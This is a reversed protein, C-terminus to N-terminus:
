TRPRRRSFPGPPRSTPPASPGAAARPLSLEAEESRLESDQPEVNLGLSRMEKVLVNFSEPCAPRSTDEGRRHGRLGQHPRGRRGVEGDADGAAHLRRRLGGAGLGGDRRLAPRRVAGQRGAAAPHGPQVPRHLPRPDQRGGPPAAEATSSLGRHGSARVSAPAATSCTSQGSEDFGWSRASTSTRSRAGDFVPTAIPVGRTVNGGSSSREEDM